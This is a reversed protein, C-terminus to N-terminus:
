YVRLRRTEGHRTAAICYGPELENAKLLEENVWEAGIIKSDERSTRFLYLFACQDRATPPIGIYRQTLFHSRHGWHRGRTALKLIRGDAEFADQAEDIFLACSRMKEASRYFAGADQIVSCGEPWGSANIPDLVLVSVGRNKYQKILKRAVTTKGSMTMGCIMVHAM